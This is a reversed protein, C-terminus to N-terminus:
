KAKERTSTTRSKRRQQVKCAATRSVSEMEGGRSAVKSNCRGFVTGQIKRRLKSHGMALVLPSFGVFLSASFHAITLLAETHRGGNHNYYTVAAVQLVWCTVFLSVLAMIVQGAKRETSMHQDLDKHGSSLVSRIHKNLAYLTVLNTGVMLVLPIVENIALSTSAFVVAQQSSPFVWMCGLLPRTTCSIVMVEVTVNGKVHTTYVLAPLSLALNGAWVAGLAALVRLRERRQALSGVAVRQRRLTLCQFASLMLTVWCSVARWWVWLLMFVRCWSDNLSLELGLDSVFIPVTRFLTTLLNALSLNVLIANSPSLQRAASELSLQFVARIVLFNGFIGSFVLIGFLIADATLIKSM